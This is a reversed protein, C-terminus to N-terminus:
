AKAELGTKTLSLVNRSFSNCCLVLDQIPVKTYDIRGDEGIISWQDLLPQNIHAHAKEPEYKGNNHKFSNNLIRVADVESYDDLSSLDAAFHNAFFFKIQDFRYPVKGKISLSGYCIEMIRKLFSEMHSWISVVLAASMANSLEHTIFMEDEVWADRVDKAIGLYADETIKAEEEQEGQRIREEWRYWGTLQYSRADVPFIGNLMMEEFLLDRNFDIRVPKMSEDQM